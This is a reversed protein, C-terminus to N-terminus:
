SRQNVYPYEKIWPHAATYTSAEFRNDDLMRCTIRIKKRNAQNLLMCMMHKTKPIYFDVGRVFIRPLSNLWEDWPYKSHPM